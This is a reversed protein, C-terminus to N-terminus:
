NRQFWQKSFIILIWFILFICLNCEFMCFSRNVKNHFYILLLLLKYLIVQRSVRTYLIKTTLARVNCYSLIMFLISTENNICKQKCSSPVFYRTYVTYWIRAISRNYFISVLFIKNTVPATQTTVALVCGLVHQVPDGVLAPATGGDGGDCRVLELAGSGSCYTRRHESEVFLM